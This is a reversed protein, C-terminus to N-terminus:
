DTAIRVCCASEDLGKNSDGKYIISCLLTIDVENKNM